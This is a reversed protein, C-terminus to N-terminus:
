LPVATLAIEHECPLSRSTVLDVPRGLLTELETAADILDLLDLDPVADVLLDVDSSAKEDHRAVSGFVRPHHLGHGALITIVEDRHLALVQQGTPRLAAALRELTVPSPQRRGREYAAINPQPVGSRLSLEKQTFGARLRQARLDSM